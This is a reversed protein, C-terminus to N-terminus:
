PANGRRHPNATKVRRARFAGAASLQSVLYENIFRKLVSKPERPRRAIAPEPQFRCAPADGCHKERWAEFWEM